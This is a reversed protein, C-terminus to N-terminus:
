GFMHVVMFATVMVRLHNHPTRICEVVICAYRCRCVGVDIVVNVDADVHADVNWMRGSLGVITKSDM